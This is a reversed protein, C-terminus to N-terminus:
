LGATSRFRPAKAPFPNAAQGPRPDVPDPSDGGPHHHRQAHALHGPARGPHRDLDRRQKQTASAALDLAVQVVPTSGYTVAATGAAQGLLLRLQSKDASLSALDVKPNQFLTQTAYASGAVDVLHGPRPQPDAGGHGWARRRRRAGAPGAGPPHLHSASDEALQWQTTDAAPGSYSLTTAPPGAPASAGGGGGGGGCALTALLRRRCPSPAAQEHALGTEAPHIALDSVDVVGDGDLDVSPDTTGYHGLLDLVDLGNPTADGSLVGANHVNM